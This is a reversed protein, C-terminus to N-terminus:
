GDSVRKRTHNPGRFTTRISHSTEVQFSLFRGHFLLSVRGLFDDANQPFDIAALVDLRGTPFVVDRRRAIIPPLLLLVPHRAMRFM